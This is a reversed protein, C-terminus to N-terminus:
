DKPLEGRWIALEVQAPKGPNLTGYVLYWDDGNRAVQGGGTAYNDGSTFLPAAFPREWVFGDESIAYGYMYTRQREDEYHRTSSYFMVYGEEVPIVVPEFVRLEDWANEPGLDFVPDSESYLGGTAPDDHKEWAVGDVSTALGIRRDPRADTDGADGSYYMRYGNNGAVVYPDHVALDDWTGDEGPLLAPEADLTWPGEPGPATARGILGSSSRGGLGWTHFFLMWTGDPAVVASRAIPGGDLYDGDEVTFLPESARRFFGDELRTAAAYGVTTGVQETGAAVYFAHYEGDEWILAGPGVLENEWGQEGLELVLGWPVFLAEPALDPATTTTEGAAETTTVVTTTSESEAAGTTVSAGSTVAPDDAGACGGVVLAVVVLHRLRGM